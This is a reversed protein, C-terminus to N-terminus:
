QYLLKLIFGNRKAYEVYVAASLVLFLTNQLLPPHLLCCFCCLTASPCFLLPLCLLPLPCLFSPFFACFPPSSPVFLLPLPCLFSPFLVHFSSPSCPLFLLPSLLFVPPLFSLLFFSLPRVYPFLLAKNQSNPYGLFSVAGNQQQVEEDSWLVTNM